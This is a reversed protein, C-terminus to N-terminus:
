APLVKLGKSARSISVAAPRFLDFNLRSARAQQGDDLLVDAKCASAKSIASKLGQFSQKLLYTGSIHDAHCHTNIALQLDLGLERVLTADRETQPCSRRLSRKSALKM